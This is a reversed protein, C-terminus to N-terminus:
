ESVSLSLRQCNGARKASAQCLHGRAHGVDAGLRPPRSLFSLKASCCGVPSSRVWPSLFCPSDIFKLTIRHCPYQHILGM